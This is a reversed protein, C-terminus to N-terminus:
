EFFEQCFLFFSNYNCNVANQGNVPCAAADFEGKYLIGGIEPFLLAKDLFSIRKGTHIM